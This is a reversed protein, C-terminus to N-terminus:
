YCVVEESESICHAELRLQNMFMTIDDTKEEYDFNKSGDNISVEILMNPKNEKSSGRARVTRRKVQDQAIHPNMFSTLSAYLFDAENHVQIEISLEESEYNSEYFGVRYPSEARHYKLPQLYFSDPSNIESVDIRHSSVDEELSKLDTSARSRKM